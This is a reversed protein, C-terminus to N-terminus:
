RNFQKTCMSASWIMLANLQSVNMYLACHTEKKKINSHTKYKYYPKQSQTDCIMMKVQWAVNTYYGISLMNQFLPMTSTHKTM